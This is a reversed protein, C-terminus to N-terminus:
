SYVHRNIKSFKKLLCRYAPTPTMAWISIHLSVLRRFIICDSIGSFIVLLQSRFNIWNCARPNGSYSCYTFLPRVTHGKLLGDPNLCLIQTNTAPHSLQSIHVTNQNPYRFPLSWKSSRPTSPLIVNSHIKPFYPTSQIRRAWSLSWHRDRTFATISSRIRYFEPSKKLLRIVTVEWPSQEMSNTLQFLSLAVNINSFSQRCESQVTHTLSHHPSCNDLVNFVSLVCHERLLTSWCSQTVKVM